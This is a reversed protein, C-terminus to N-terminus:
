EWNYTEPGTEFDGDADLDATVEYQINSIAELRIQAQDAGTLLMEGESPNDEGSYTRFPTVTEIEVYGHEPHYVRGEIEFDEYGLGETITIEIDRMWVIEDTTLDEFLLDMTVVESNGTATISLEGNLRFSEGDETGTLSTFTFTFYELEETDPDIRGSFSASGDLTTDDECFSSFSFSGSFVGSNDDAQISFSASGGCSGPVTDNVTVAARVNTAASTAEAPDAKILAVQLARSVALMTPNGGVDSSSDGQPSVSAISGFPGEVSASDYATAALTQSNSNTITAADRNGEYASGGGGGSGGSSSGCGTFLTITGILLIALFGAWHAPAWTQQRQMRM